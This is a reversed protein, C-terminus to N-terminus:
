VFAQVGFFRRLLRDHMLKRVPHLTCVGVAFHALIDRVAPNQLLRGSRGGAQVLRRLAHAPRLCPLLLNQLIIGSCPDLCIRFFLHDGFQALLIKKIVLIGHVLDAALVHTQRFGHQVPHPLHDAPHAASRHLGFQPM